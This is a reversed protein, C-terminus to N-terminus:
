GADYRKAIAVYRARCTAAKGREPLRVCAALHTSARGTDRLQTIFADWSADDAIRAEAHLDAFLPARFALASDAVFVDADLGAEQLRLSVLGWAALTMMSGLSGGFACGKDNIHCGLPAHLRLCDGDYGDIRMRMAAVPPMAQYHAHLQMLAYDRDM